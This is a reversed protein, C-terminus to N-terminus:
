NESRAFIVNDQNRHIEFMGFRGCCYNVFFDLAEKNQAHELCILECGIEDLNIQNLVVQEHGEVDISIFDFKKIPNKEFFYDFTFFECETEIWEMGYFRNKHGEHLSSLIAIPTDDRGIWNVSEHFKFTGNQDSIGYNFLHVGGNGFYNKELTPFIAKSPELCCGKWGLLGLDWTNSFTKGDNAGIDLFSLSEQIRNKFYPIIIEHEGHQTHMKKILKSIKM